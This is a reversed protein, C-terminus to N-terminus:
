AEPGMMSNPEPSVEELPYIIKSLNSRPNGLDGFIAKNSVGAPKSSL